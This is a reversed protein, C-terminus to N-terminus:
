LAPEMGNPKFVVKNVKNKEFDTLSSLAREDIKPLIVDVFGEFKEKNRVLAELADDFVSRVPCRGFQIHLNKNYAENGNFPLDQTHLGLATNAKQLNTLLSPLLSSLGIVSIKGAFRLIDFATRLADAHGVVEIVADAGRGETAKLIEAKVDDTKFNLPIAGLAEARKLRDPVSDVAYLKAPKYELASVISCLAVPGCGIVVVVM